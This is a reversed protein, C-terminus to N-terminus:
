FKALGYIVAIGGTGVAAMTLPNSLVQFPRHVLDKADNYLTKAVDKAKHYVIPAAKGIAKAGLKVLKTVSRAAHKVTSWADSAGNKSHRV